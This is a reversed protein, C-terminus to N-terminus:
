LADASLLSSLVRISNGSTQYADNWEEEPYNHTPDLISSLEPVEDCLKMLWHWEECFWTKNM